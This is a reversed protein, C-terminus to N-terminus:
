AIKFFGDGFQLFHFGGGSARDLSLNFAHSFSGTYNVGDYDYANTFANSFDRSYEGDPWSNDYHPCRDFAMDFGRGFEIEYFNFFVHTHAPKVRNIESILKSINIDESETLGDLYIYVIWKFLQDQDGCPDGAGAIGVWAPTNEHIYVTYGLAEAIGEYYGKHQSGTSIEKAYIEERRKTISEYPDTIDYDEEFEEILETTKLPSREDILDLARTDVRALEGGFAYLLKALNSTRDRTWLRGKPMLSYLLDQYNTDTRM